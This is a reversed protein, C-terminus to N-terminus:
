CDEFWAHKPQNSVWVQWHGTCPAKGALWYSLAHISKTGNLLQSMFVVQKSYIHPHIEEVCSTPDRWDYTMRSKEATIKWAWKWSTSYISVKSEVSQKEHQWSERKPKFCCKFTALIHIFFRSEQLTWITHLLLRTTKNLRHAAGAARAM